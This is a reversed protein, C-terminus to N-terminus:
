LIELLESGYKASVEYRGTANSVQISAQNQVRNMFVSLINNNDLWTVATILHEGLNLAPPVPVRQTRTSDSVAVTYLEVIPNNSGAKPYYVVSERPYQYSLDGPTGYYSLNISRTSSDDFRIYAIHTGSPNFWAATNSAFVEESSISTSILIYYENSSRNLTRIRSVKMFGIPIAM